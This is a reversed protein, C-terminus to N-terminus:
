AKGRAKEVFSNNVCDAFKAKAELAPTPYMRGDGMVKILNAYADPTYTSDYNWVAKFKTAAAALAAKPTNPLFESRVLEAIDDASASKLFDMGKVLGTVLKQVEAPKEDIADKLVYIGIGPLDGSFIANWDGDKDAQFIPVGWGEAQAAEVMAFTAICGDVSNAKVAGLMTTFDGLPRFEVKDKLGAAEAIYVGLLWTWAQPQTVGIKRGALDKVSRVGADYAAKSVIINAAAPRRELNCVLVSTKGAMTLAVSDSSGTCAAFIQGASLMQKTRPGSQSNLHEVDLGADKFYGKKLAAYISAYGVDLSAVGFIVSEAASLRAPLAAAGLGIAAAGLFSRRNMHPGFM